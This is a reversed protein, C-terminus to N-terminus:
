FVLGYSFFLTICCCIFLCIFSGERCQEVKKPDNEYNKEWFQILKAYITPVAMFLTFDRQNLFRIVIFLLVRFVYCTNCVFLYSIFGIGFKRQMLIKLSIVDPEV